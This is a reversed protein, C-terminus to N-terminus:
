PHIANNDNNTEKKKKWSLEALKIARQPGTLGDPGIKLSAFGVPKTHAANGGLSGRHQQAEKYAELGGAKRIMTERAKKAGEPTQAM